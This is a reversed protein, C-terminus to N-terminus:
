DTPKQEDDALEADNVFGCDIVQGKDIGAHLLRRNDVCAWAMRGTTCEATWRGDADLAIVGGCGDTLRRMFQLAEYAADTISDGRMLVLDVLHKCLCAKLISEGHGTASAAGVGELCYLGAGAIPSDGVRGVRKYTIGGTSTACALRGTCDLAVAGVTDHGSNFLDNVVHGYKQYQEWEQRASDSVLQSADVSSFNANHAFEDAGSGVFLSHESALVARAVSIPHEVNSVAAVAGLRSPVDTMIAADMEITGVNTLCSGIGADFVPDSELHKVAAEVADIATGKNNNKDSQLIRYAITTATRVGKLTVDTRSQPIQWAGGHVIVVPDVCAM